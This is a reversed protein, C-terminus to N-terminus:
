VYYLPSYGFIFRLIMRNGNADNRTRPRPEHPLVVEDELVGAALSDAEAEVEVEADAEADAEAEVVGTTVVSEILSM